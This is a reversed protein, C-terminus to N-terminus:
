YFFINSYSKITENRASSTHICYATERFGISFSTFLYFGVHSYTGLVQSLSSTDVRVGGGTQSSQYAVCLLSTRM